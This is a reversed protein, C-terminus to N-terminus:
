IVTVAVCQPLGEPRTLLQFNRLDHSLSETRASHRLPLKEDVEGLASERCLSLSILGVIKLLLLLEVM